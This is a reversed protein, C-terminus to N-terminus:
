ESIVMGIASYIGIDEGESQWEMEDHEEEIVHHHSFMSWHYYFSAPLVRTPPRGM